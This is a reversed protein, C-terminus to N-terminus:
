SGGGAAPPRRGVGIVRLYGLWKEESDITMQGFGNPSAACFVLGAMMPVGHFKFGGAVSSWPTGKGGDGPLRVSAFFKHAFGRSSLEAPWRRVLSNHAAVIRDLGPVIADFVQPLGDAPPLDNGRGAPALVVAALRMPLNFVEMALPGSPPGGEGLAAVDIVYQPAGAATRPRRRRFFRRVWQFTAALISLVIALGAVVLGITIWPVASIADQARQLFDDM